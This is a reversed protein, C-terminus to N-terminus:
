KKDWKNNKIQKISNKQLLNLSDVIIKEKEKQFAGTFISTDTKKLNLTDIPAHTKTFPNILESGQTVKLKFVNNMFFLAFFAILGAIVPTSIWGIAIEGLVSYKIERGGKLIGIGIISGVIVQSSSVPVLPIPPLGISVSFDSLSQSSFIFLVMSQALVVVLAAESSLHVINSGVQEMIKRSYTFIGISIAIGGLLFLQQVGSLKFIFFDIEDLPVSSVFIGMVNAINNAGLSYSGFAGVIILAMRLFADLKLLHPKINNLALKFFYYLIISFVAGLIPGAVWTTLIKTLSNINTPNGTYFNWGIIGGVIAQTTSVPLKFKTMYFVTLAAALAVTFAGAIADINGLKGLTHSAGEGQVVAGIIVFTGAIIAANKFKVMRTGVASGFVNAADNAGLSWGLFLGSTLFFFVM